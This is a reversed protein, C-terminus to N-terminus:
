VRMVPLIREFKRGMNRDGVFGLLIVLYKKERRKVAGCNERERFVVVIKNVTKEEWLKNIDKGYGLENEKAIAKTENQFSQENPPPDM